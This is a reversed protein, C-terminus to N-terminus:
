YVLVSCIDRSFTVEVLSDPSVSAGVFSEVRSAPVTAANVVQLIQFVTMAVSPDFVTCLKGLTPGEPEGPQPEPGQPPSEPEGPQPPSEGNPCIGSYHCLAGKPDGSNTAMCAVMVPSDWFEDSHGTCKAREQAYSTLTQSVGACIPSGSTCSADAGGCQTNGYTYAHPDSAKVGIVLAAARGCAYRCTVHTGGMGHDDDARMCSPAAATQDYVFDVPERFPLSQGPMAGAVFMTALLCAYLWPPTAM